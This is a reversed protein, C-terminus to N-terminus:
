VVGNHLDALEDIILKLMEGVAESAVGNTALHNFCTIIHSLFVEAEGAALIEFVGVIEAINDFDGLLEAIADGVDALELDEMVAFNALNEFLEDGDLADSGAGVNTNSLFGALGHRSWIKVLIQETFEPAGVFSGAFAFAFGDVFM